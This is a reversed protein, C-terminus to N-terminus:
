PAAGSIEASGDRESDEILQVRIREMQNHTLYRKRGFVIHPWRQQRVLIMLPTNDIPLRGQAADFGILEPLGDPGLNGRRDEAPIQLFSLYDDRTIRWQGSQGVGAGLVKRGRLRTPNTLGLQLQRTVNWAKVGLHAAIQDVTLDGTGGNRLM